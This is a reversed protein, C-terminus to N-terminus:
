DLPPIGTHAARSDPLYEWYELYRFCGRSVGHVYLVPRAGGACSPQRCRRFDVPSEGDGRESIFRPEYQAALALWARDGSATAARPALVAAGATFLLALLLCLGAYEVTVQARQPM